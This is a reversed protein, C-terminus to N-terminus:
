KLGQWSNLSGRFAGHIKEFDQKRATVRFRLQTNGVDLFLVSSQFPIGGRQYEVTVEFTEHNNILIPNKDSSVVTVNQAGSKVSRVVQEQLMKMTEEDFNQPEELRSQEIVAEAQLTNPPTFSIQTSSGSYKWGRPQEYILKRGDEHFILQSFKIGDLVREGVTPTFDIAGLASGSVLAFGILWGATKQRSFNM